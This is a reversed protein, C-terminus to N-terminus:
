NDEELKEEKELNKALDTNKLKKGVKSSELKRYNEYFDLEDTTIACSPTAICREILEIKGKFGFQMQVKNKFKPGSITVGLIFITLITIFIIKKANSSLDM